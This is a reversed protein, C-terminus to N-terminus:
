KSDGSNHSVGSSSYYARSKEEARNRDRTRSRTTCPPEVKGAYERGYRREMEDLVDSIIEQGLSGGWLYELNSWDSKLADGLLNNLAQYSGTLWDKALDCDRKPTGCDSCSGTQKGSPCAHCKGWNATAHSLMWFLGGACWDESEEEVLTMAKALRARREWDQQQHEYDLSEIECVLPVTTVCGWDYVTVHRGTAKEIDMALELSPMNEGRVLASVCGGTVGLVKALDAQSVRFKHLFDRLRM